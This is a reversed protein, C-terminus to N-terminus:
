KQHSAEEKLNCSSYSSAVLSLIELSFRILGFILHFNVFDLFWWKNNLGQRTAVVYQVSLKLSVM